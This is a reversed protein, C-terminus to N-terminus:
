NAKANADIGARGQVRMPVPEKKLNPYPAAVSQRRVLRVQPQRTTAVAVGAPTTHEKKASARRAEGGKVKEKSGAGGKGAGGGGNGSPFSEGPKAGPGPSVKPVGVAAVAATAAATAGGPPPPSRAADPRM